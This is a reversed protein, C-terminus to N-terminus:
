VVKEVSIWESNTVDNSGKKVSIVKYHATPDLPVLAAILKAEDTFMPKVRNYQKYEGKSNVRSVTFKVADYSIGSKAQYDVVELDSLGVIMTASCAALRQTDMMAMLEESSPNRKKIKLGAVTNADKQFPPTNNLDSSANSAATRESLANLNLTDNSTTM